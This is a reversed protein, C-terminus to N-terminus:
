PRIRTEALPFAEKVLVVPSGAVAVVSALRIVRPAHSPPGADATSFTLAFGLPAALLWASHWQKRM